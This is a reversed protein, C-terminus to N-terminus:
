KNTIKANNILFDLVKNEIISDDIDDFRRAKGLNERAEDESVGYAQAFRRVWGTRDDESVTISEKKAIEYYLFQWRLNDQGVPRYAERLKVEDVDKYRKKFDAIVSNLYKEVMSDPVDFRNNNVVKKIIENRVATDADEKFRKTINERLNKKLTDLDPSEAFKKAFEDDLPALKKEKIEKIMILYKVRNGALLKDSNNEPYAVEIEKMEGIAAGSLGEKFEKIVDEADLTISLNEAKEDKIKGLTDTKKLVDIVVMDNSNSKREVPIYEASKNHLEKLYTGAEDDTVQHEDRQIELGTYDKVEFEPKVEIEAKFTLPKNDGFEIDSVKPRTIPWFNEKKIAEDVAKNILEEIVEAKIEDAFRKKVIELPAKGPRFGPINAKSRYVAFHEELESAVDTQPIEIELIRKCNPETKLTVKPM